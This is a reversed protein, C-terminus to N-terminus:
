LFRAVRVVDQSGRKIYFIKYFPKMKPWIIFFDFNQYKAVRKLLKAVGFLTAVGLKLVASKFSWFCLKKKVRKNGNQCLEINSFYFRCNEKTELFLWFIIKQSKKFPRSKFNCSMRFSSAPSSTWFIHLEVLAYGVAPTEFEIEDSPWM